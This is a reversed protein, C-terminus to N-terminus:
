AVRWMGFKNDAHECEIGSVISGLGLSGCGTLVLDGKAGRPNFLLLQLRVWEREVASTVLAHLKLDVIWQTTRSSLLFKM